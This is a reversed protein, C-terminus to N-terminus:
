CLILLLVEGLPGDQPVEEMVAAAEPHKACYDVIEKYASTAVNAIKHRGGPPVVLKSALRGNYKEPLKGVVRMTDKFATFHKVVAQVLANV